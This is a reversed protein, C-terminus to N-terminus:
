DEDDDDGGFASLAAAAQSAYSAADELDLDENELLSAAKKALEVADGLDVDETNLSNLLDTAQSALDAADGLDINSSQMLDLAKQYYEKLGDADINDLDIDDLDIDDFDIGLAEFDIEEGNKYQELLAEFDVDGVEVGLDEAEVVTVTNDEVAKTAEEKKSGCSVLSLSCVALAAVIFKKM